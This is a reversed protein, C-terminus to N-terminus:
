TSSADVTYTVALGSSATAALTDSTGYAAPTTPQPFTITQSAKKAVVTRTVDPAASYSVNGAQHATIVCNGAGTITLTSGSVTCPGTVTFAVALGSSASASLSIPAVGYTVPSSPGAFTITQSAVGSSTVSLTPTCSGLGGFLYDLVSPGEAYTGGITISTGEAAQIASLGAANLTVSHSVNAQSILSSGYSTGSGLDAYAAQGATDGGSRGVNLTAVPTTVDWLAWTALSGGDGGCSGGSPATLTAATVAGVVSSLDFAFFDRFQGINSGNNGVVYNRDGAFHTGDSKIWGQSSASLTSTTASASAASTVATSGAVVLVASVALAGLRRGANLRHPLFRFMTAGTLISGAPTWSSMLFSYGIKRNDFRRRTALSVAEAFHDFLASRDTM